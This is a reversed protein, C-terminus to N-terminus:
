EDRTELRGSWYLWDRWSKHLNETPIGGKSRLDHATPRRPPRIPKMIVKSGKKMNCDVCASVINSFCTKGGLARPLVHDFTLDKTSFRSGCYQCCFEDRLFVNFRTFAVRDPTKVYKTLAVVSPPDYTMRASRLTVGYTDLVLARGKIVNRMTRAFDWVSLPHVKIPTFDANLALAPYQSATM